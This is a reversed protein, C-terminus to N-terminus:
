RSVRDRGNIKARYMAADAERLLEAASYSANAQVMGISARVSIADGDIDISTRLLQAVRDAVLRAQGTTTNECLIVFEDGGLRAVTDGERVAHQLQGAAHVLLRDGAEHGYTDNIQKFGDLDLFLLSVGSKQGRTALAKEIREMLLRRNPLHTLPDYLAYVALTADIRRQMVREVELGLQAAEAELGDWANSRGTVSQSWASFSTRPSLTTARNSVSLDGLWEVTQVVEGRFWALFDGDAGIPVVIAGAVGPVLAALDPHETALAASVLTAGASVRLASDVFAAIQHDDLTTGARHTEGLVRVAAVDADILSLLSTDGSIFSSEVEGTANFRAVLQDRVSRFEGLREFRAIDDMSGLQMAIQSATIELAKRIRYPLRRPERHACTIMGILRGDRILSLSFTSAQGMNRMFQLHHPSVARLEADSLDLRDDVTSLLETGVVSSDAIIRSLKTLYLQRAQAPIDSAPYHLGKYPEMDDARAEAVVEGHEDPHFYYVMVRDFGLLRRFEFAVQDWLEQKSDLSTWRHMAAYLGSMSVAQTVSMAPELEVVALGGARSVIVDFPKGNLTLALPEIVTEGRELVAAIAAIAEDGVVRSLPQGLLEHASANSLIETNDSVHEIVFTSPDTAFFVGHPQIASPTRIPEKICNELRINEEALFEQFNIM